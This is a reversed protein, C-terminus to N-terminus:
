QHHWLDDTNLLFQLPAFPPSTIVCYALAKFSKFISQILALAQWAL